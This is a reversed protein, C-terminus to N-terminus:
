ARAALEWLLEDRWHDYTLHHVHVALAARCGQCLNDERELVAARKEQWEDTQLYENHAEFWERREAERREEFFQTRNKWEQEQREKCRNLAVLDVNPTSPTALRHALQGALLKGCHVCQHRLQRGSEFPEGYANVTSWVMNKRTHECKTM